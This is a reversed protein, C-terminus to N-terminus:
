GELVLGWESKVFIIDKTQSITIIDDSFRMHINGKWRLKNYKTNSRHMDPKASEWHPPSSFLQLSLSSLIEWVCHKLHWACLCLCLICLGQWSIHPAVAWWQCYPHELQWPLGWFLLTSAGKQPLVAAFCPCLEVWVGLAGSFRVTACHVSNQKRM